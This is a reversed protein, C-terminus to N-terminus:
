LALSRALVQSRGSRYDDLVTPGVTAAAWPYRGAVTLWLQEALEMLEWLQDNIRLAALTNGPPAIVGAAALEVLGDLSMITASRIALANSIVDADFLLAAEIIGDTRGRTMRTYRWISQIVPAHKTMDRLDTDTSDSLIHLQACIEDLENRTMPGDRACTSSGRLMGKLQSAYAMAGFAQSSVVIALRQRTKFAPRWSVLYYFFWAALYGVGLDAVLDAVDGGREFWPKATAFVVRILVALVLTVAALANVIAQDRERLFATVASAPRETAKPLDPV